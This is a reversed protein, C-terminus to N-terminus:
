QKGIREDGFPSILEIECHEFHGINRTALDGLREPGAVARRLIRRVQEETSVGHKAALVRLQRMTDEDLKRISLNAVVNNAGYTREAGDKIAHATLSPLHYRTRVAFALADDFEFPLEHDTALGVLVVGKVVDHQEIEVGVPFGHGGKHRGRETTGLHL